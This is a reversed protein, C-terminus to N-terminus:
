FTSKVAKVLLKLYEYASLEVDTMVPRVLNFQSRCSFCYAKNDYTMVLNEFCKPCTM